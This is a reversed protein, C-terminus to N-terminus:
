NPPSTYPLMEGKSVELGEQSFPLKFASNNLLIELHRYTCTCTHYTWLHLHIVFKPCLLKNQTCLAGCKTSTKCQRHTHTHTHTHSLSHSLVRLIHTQRFIAKKSTTVIFEEIYPTKRSPTFYSLSAARVFCHFSLLGM